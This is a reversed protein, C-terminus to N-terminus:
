PSVKCFQTISLARMPDPPPTQGECAQARALRQREQIPLQRDQAELLRALREGFSEHQSFCDGAGPQWRAPTGDEYMCYTLAAQKADQLRAAQLSAFFYVATDEANLDRAPHWQEAHAEAQARFSPAAVPLTTYVFISEDGRAPGGRSGHFLFPQGYRSDQTVLAASAIAPLLLAAALSLGWDRADAPSHGGFAAVFLQAILSDTLLFLGLPNQQWPLRHLAADTTAAQYITTVDLLLALGCLALGLLAGRALGLLPAPWAKQSALLVSVGAFTALHLVGGAVPIPMLYDALASGSGWVGKWGLAGAILAPAPWALVLWFLFRAM